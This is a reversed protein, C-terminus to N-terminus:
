IRAAHMILSEIVYCFLDIYFLNEHKLCCLHLKIWGYKISKKNSRREEVFRTLSGIDGSLELTFYCEYKRQFKNKLMIFFSGPKNLSELANVFLYWNHKYTQKINKHKQFFEVTFSEQLCTKKYIRTELSNRRKRFTM